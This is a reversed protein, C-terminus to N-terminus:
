KRLAAAISAKLDEGSWQPKAVIKGDPGIIWFNPIGAGDVGYAKVLPDEWENGLFGQHWSMDHQAVYHIPEDPRTDMSLSIMAFRPDNAFTRYVDKLSDTEGRCPGCWTAWFELLVVKGRFDALRLERDDLTKVVFDPAVDGIWLEHLVEVPVNAIALPQESRDGPIPDVTFVAEGRGLRRIPQDHSHKEVVNVSLSYTGPTVDEIRFSGDAQVEFGHTTTEITKGQKDRADVFKKGAKTKAFAEWWQAQQPMPEHKMEEPMPSPLTDTKVSIFCESLQVDKRNALAPPLEIHGVVPREHGGMAVTTTKGPKIEVFTVPREPQGWSFKYDPAIHTTGAAVRPMVFEGADDTKLESEYLADPTNTSRDADGAAFQWAIVQQGADPKNGKRLTGAIKGWAQLHMESSLTRPNAQAYGSPHIAVILYPQTTAPFHIRGSEEATCHQYNPDDDFKEGDIVNVLRGQPVLAAAAGSAPQGDPRLVTTAIESPQTARPNFQHVTQCGCMGMLMMLFWRTM